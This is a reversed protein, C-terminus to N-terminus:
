NPKRPSPRETSCVDCGDVVSVTANTEHWSQLKPAILEKGTLGRNLRAKLTTFPIGSEESIETLTRFVGNYEALRNNRRNLNQERRTAWCVNGPVYNSNNDMREVTHKPTPKPGIHDLFASFSKRWEDCVTIGRGGYHEWKKHSANTCRNIM